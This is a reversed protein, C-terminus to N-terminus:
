ASKLLSIARRKKRKITTLRNHMGLKNAFNEGSEYANLADNFRNLYYLAEGYGRYWYPLLRSDMSKVALKIAIKYQVIAKEYKSHNKYLTARNGAIKRLRHIDGIRNAITYSSDFYSLAVDYDSSMASVGLKMLFEAELRLDAIIRSNKLAIQWISDAQAYKSLRYLCTGWIGLIVHDQFSQQSLQSFIECARDYDSDMYSYFAAIIESPYHSFDKHKLVERGRFEENHQYDFEIFDKLLAFSPQSIHLAQKFAQFAANADNQLRYIKALIWYSNRLYSQKVTLKQFYAKAAQLNKDITYHELLKHYVPEFKPHDELIKQLVKIVNTSSEGAVSELIQYYASLTNQETSVSYLPGQSLESFLGSPLCSFFTMLVVIYKLKFKMM